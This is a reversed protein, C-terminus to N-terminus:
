RFFSITNLYTNAVVVDPKGDGDLDGSAISEPAGGTTFDVRGAFSNPNLSGAGGFTVAFPTKSYAIKGGTAVSISQYNAGAPVTVILRNSTASTINAKVGGFYVINNQPTSNFNAGEITVVTGITGSVPSFSNIVPT